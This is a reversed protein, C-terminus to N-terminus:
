RCLREARKWGDSGGHRRLQDVIWLIDGETIELDIPSSWFCRDRYERYARRAERIRVMRRAQEHGLFRKSKRGGSRGIKAMYKSVVVNVM